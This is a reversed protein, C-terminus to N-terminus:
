SRQLRAEPVTSGRAILTTPILEVTCRSPSSKVVSGILMRIARRGFEEIPVHVTTLAPTLFRAMPVDDFGAIALSEPVRIGADRFASMAGIAMSDNCAFCFDFRRPHALMTHAASWGSDQSFDGVFETITVADGAKAIVARFADRRAVADDNSEPGTIMALHRFGMSLAHEAVAAAGATNDIMLSAAGCARADLGVVVVPLTDALATIVDDARNGPAVILYGDVRGRMAAAANRLQVPDAHTSTALLHIGADRSCDDIGRLFEVWFEGFLNPLLVGLAGTRRTVLSRAGGHPLYGLALATHQVRDRTAPDGHHRGNLVRSVTAASVGAERAVDTITTSASGTQSRALPTEAVGALAISPTVFSPRAGSSRPRIPLRSPM